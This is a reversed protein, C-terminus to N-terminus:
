IFVSSVCRFEVVVSNKKNEIFITRKAFVVPLLALSLAPSPV